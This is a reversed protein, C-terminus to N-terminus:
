GCLPRAERRCSIARSRFPPRSRADEVRELRAVIGVGGLEERVAVQEELQGAGQLREEVVQGRGPQRVPHHHQEEALEAPGDRSFPEAPVSWPM